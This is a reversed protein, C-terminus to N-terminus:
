RLCGKIKHLLLDNDKTQYDELKRIKSLDFEKEEKILMKKNLNKLRKQIEKLEKNLERDTKIKNKMKKM